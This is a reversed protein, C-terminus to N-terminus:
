TGYPLFWMQVGEPKLNIYSLLFKSFQHQSYYLLRYVTRGFIVELYKINYHPKFLRAPTITVLWGIKIKKVPYVTFLFIGVNYIPDNFMM